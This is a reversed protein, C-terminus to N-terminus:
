AGASPGAARRRASGRALLGLASLAALQLAGSGPEPLFRRNTDVLRQSVTGSDDSLRAKVLGLGAARWEVASVFIAVPSGGASGFVRLDREIRVTPFTGFPVTVQERRVVHVGEEYSLDLSSGDEFEFLTSGSTAFRDGVEFPHMVQLRPPSYTVRTDLFAGALPLDPTFARHIRAGLADATVNLRQGDLAGGSQLQVRTPVGNVIETGSLISIRVRTGHDDALVKFEGPRVPFYREADLAAARAALLSLALAALLAVGSGDLPAPVASSRPPM